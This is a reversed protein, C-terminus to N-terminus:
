GAVLLRVFDIIFTVIYFEYLLAALLAVSGMVFLFRKM